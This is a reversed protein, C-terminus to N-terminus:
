QKPPSNEDGVITIYLSEVAEAKASEKQFADKHYMSIMKATVDKPIKFKEHLEEGIQKVLGKYYEAQSLSSSAEKLADLIEKRDKESSPIAFQYTEIVSM